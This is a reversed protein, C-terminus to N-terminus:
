GNISETSWVIPIASFVVSRALSSVEELVVPKVQLEGKEDVINVCLYPQGAVFESPSLIRIRLSM